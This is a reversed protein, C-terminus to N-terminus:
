KSNSVCTRYNDRVLLNTEESFAPYKLKCGMREVSTTNRLMQLALTYAVENFNMVNFIINVDQTVCSFIEANMLKVSHVILYKIITDKLTRKLFM